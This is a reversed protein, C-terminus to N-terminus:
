DAGAKATCCGRATRHDTLPFYFGRSGFTSAVRTPRVHRQFWQLLAAAVGRPLVSVDSRRVSLGRRTRKPEAGHANCSLTGPTMMANVAWAASSHCAHCHLDTHRKRETAGTILPASSFCVFLAIDRVLLRTFTLQVSIPRTLCMTFRLSVARDNVVPNTMLILWSSAGCLGCGNVRSCGTQKMQSCFPSFFLHTPPTPTTNFLPLILWVLFVSEWIHCKKKLRIIVSSEGLSCGSSSSSAANVDCSNFWTLCWPQSKAMGDFGGCMRVQLYCSSWESSLSKWSAALALM